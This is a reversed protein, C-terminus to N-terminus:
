PIPDPMIASAITGSNTKAVMIPANRVDFHYANRVYGYEWVADLRPIWPSTNCSDDGEVCCKTCCTCQFEKPSGPVGPYCDSVFHSPKVDPENCISWANGKVHNGAILFVDLAKMAGMQPPLRGTFQNRNLLLQNLNEMLGIWWPISGTLENSGLDLLQLNSFEGIWDPIPGQLKNNQMILYKLNILKSLDPISQEVFDNHTTALYVLDVLMGLIDPITGELRNYSVDLHKLNKIFGLRDSIPGSILNAHLDLFQLNNNEIGDDPFPGDFLNQHLDAVVLKPHNILSAPVRGGILNKSLDLELIEPWKTMLGDIEGEGDFANDNLYLFKLNSMTGFLDGINGTLGTNGDLALLKLQNLKQISSPVQGQLNNNGLGLSTLQTLDGIWEPILGSIDCYQLGISKLNPMSEFARPLRTAKIGKNFYLHFTDLKTLWKIEDPIENGQLGNSAPSSCSLLSKLLVFHSSVKRFDDVLDAAAAASVFFLNQSTAMRRM